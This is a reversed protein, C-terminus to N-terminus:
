IQKNSERSFYKNTLFYQNDCIIYTNPIGNINEYLKMLKDDILLHCVKLDFINHKKKIM